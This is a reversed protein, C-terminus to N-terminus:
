RRHIKGAPSIDFTKSSNMMSEMGYKATITVTYVSNEVVNLFEHVFVESDGWKRKYIPPYALPDVLILEYERQVTRNDAFNKCISSKSRGNLSVVFFSVQTSFEGAAFTITIM